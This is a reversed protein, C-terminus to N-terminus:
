CYSDIFIFKSYSCDQCPVPLTPSWGLDHLVQKVYQRMGRVSVPGARKYAPMIAKKLLDHFVYHFTAASVLKKQVLIFYVRGRSQPMGWDKSSPHWDPFPFFPVCWITDLWDPNTIRWEMGMELHIRCMVWMATSTSLNLQLFHLAILAIYMMPCTSARYVSVSNCLVYCLRLGSQHLSCTCVTCCTLICSTM